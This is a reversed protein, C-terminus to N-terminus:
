LSKLLKVSPFDEPDFGLTLAELFDGIKLVGTRTSHRRLLREMSVRLARLDRTAARASLVFLLHLVLFAMHALDLLRDVSGWSAFVRFRHAGFSRKFSFFFTEITWRSSYLWVLRRIQEVTDVPLSTALFIPEREGDSICLIRVRFFSAKAVYVRAGFASVSCPTARKSDERWFARCREPQWVALKSLGGPKHGRVRVTLDGQLRILFDTRPKQSLTHLLDKRRFGRDGVLIIRRKLAKWILRRVRYIEVEELMSQSRFWPAKDSFLFRTLGLCSRNKLLVGTWIEQYGPALLREKGPINKMRVSGIAPMRKKKGRSRRKEHETTDVIVVVKGGYLYLRRSGLSRLVAVLLREKQRSFDLRQQRLFLSFRNIGGRVPRGSIRALDKLLLSRALSLALLLEVLKEGWNYPLDLPGLCSRLTKPILHRSKLGTPPPRHM